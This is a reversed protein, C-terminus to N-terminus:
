KFLLDLFFFLKKIFFFPFNKDILDDESTTGFWFAVFFPFYSVADKLDKEYEQYSYNMVKYHLLKQYYYNKFIQFNIKINELEFSEILFFIVDQVGKGIAVYQWDIFLPKLKKTTDYFINPSKVDGHM